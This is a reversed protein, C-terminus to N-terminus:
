LGSHLVAHACLTMPQTKIHECKLLCLKSPTAQLTDEQKTLMEEEQVQSICFMCQPTQMHLNLNNMTNNLGFLTTPCTVDSHTLNKKFTRKETNISRRVCTAM